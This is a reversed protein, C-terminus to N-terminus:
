LVASKSARLIAEIRLCVLPRLYSIMTTSLAEESLETFRTLFHEHHEKPLNTLISDLIHHHLTEDILLLTKEKEGKTLPYNDLIVTVDEIVLLHDYFFQAM